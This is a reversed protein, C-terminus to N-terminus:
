SRVCFTHSIASSSPGIGIGDAISEHDVPRSSKKIEKWQNWQYLASYNVGVMEMCIHNEYSGPPRPLWSERVESQNHCVRELEKQTRIKKSQVIPHDVM